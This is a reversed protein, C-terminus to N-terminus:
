KKLYEMGWKNFPAAVKQAETMTPPFATASFLAVLM